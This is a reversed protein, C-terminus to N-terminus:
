AVVANGYGVSLVNCGDGALLIRAEETEQYYLSSTLQPELQERLRGVDGDFGVATDVGAGVVGVMSGEFVM